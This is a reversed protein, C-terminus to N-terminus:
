GADCGEDVCPGVEDGFGAGSGAFLNSSGAYSGAVIGGSTSYSSTSAIIFPIAAMARPPLPARCSGASPARCSGATTPALLSESVELSSSSSLGLGM